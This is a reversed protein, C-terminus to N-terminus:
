NEANKEEQIGEEFYLVQGPKLDWRNKLGNIRILDESSIRYTAAIEELREKGKVVYKKVGEIEEFAEEAKGIIGVIVMNKDKLKVEYNMSAPYASIGLSLFLFFVARRIKM